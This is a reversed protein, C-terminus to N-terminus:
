GFWPARPVLKVLMRPRWVTERMEMIPIVALKMESITAFLVTGGFTRIPVSETTLIRQVGAEEQQRRVYVDRFIHVSM